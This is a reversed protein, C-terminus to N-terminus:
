ECFAELIALLEKDHIEYKREGDNLKLSHFAVPHLRKGLYQSLIGGLACYRADPEIVTEQDPYFHALSPASTFREKFEKFAMNQEEVWFWSHKGGKTKLTDTIPKCLKAFNEIFRRYFNSFGIFIRVDKVSQPPIWDLISVRLRKETMNVGSKAM